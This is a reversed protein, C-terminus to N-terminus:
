PTVKTPQPAPPAPPQAAAAAKNILQRQKEASSMANMVDHFFKISAKSGGAIIAATLAHGWLQTHEKTFIISLADFDWFRVVGFAVLFTIPEKVGKQSLPGVVWRNEFVLALAREIFFSLVIIAVLVEFLREMDVAFLNPDM